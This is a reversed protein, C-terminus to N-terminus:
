KIAILVVGIDHLFPCILQALSVVAFAEVAQVPVTAVIKVAQASQALTSLIRIRCRQVFTAVTSLINMLLPPVLVVSM